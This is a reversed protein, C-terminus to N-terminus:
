PSRRAAALDSMMKSFQRGAPSNGQVRRGCATRAYADGLKVNPIGFNQPGFLISIATRPELRCPLSRGDFSTSNLVPVRRGAGTMFGVEAITVPFASLNIVEISVGSPDNDLTTVFNPTVRVRVRQQNLSNWTNMIGLVAGTAAAALTVYDMWTFPAPATSM